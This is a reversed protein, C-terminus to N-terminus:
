GFDSDKGADATRYEDEGQSPHNASDLWHGILLNEEPDVSNEVSQASKLLKKRVDAARQAAASKEGNGVSYLNAANVNMQSGHIHM